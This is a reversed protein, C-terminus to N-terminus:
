CRGGLLFGRPMYVRFIIIYDRSQFKRFLYTCTVVNNTNTTPKTTRNTVETIKMIKFRRNIGSGTADNREGERLLAKRKTSPQCMHAHPVTAYEFKNCKTKRRFAVRISHRLGKKKLNLVSRSYNTSSSSMMFKLYLALLTM